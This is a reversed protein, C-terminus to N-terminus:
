LLHCSLAIFAFSAIAASEIVRRLGVIAVPAGAPLSDVFLLAAIASLAEAASLADVILPADANFPEDVNSYSNVILIADLGLPTIATLLVGVFAGLLAAAPSGM